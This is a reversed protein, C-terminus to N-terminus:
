LALSSTYTKGISALTIGMVLAAPYLHNKTDTIERDMLRKWILSIAVVAFVMLTGASVQLGLTL